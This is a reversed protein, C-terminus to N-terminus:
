ANSEDKAQTSAEIFKEILFIQSKLMRETNFYAKSQEPFNHQATKVMPLFHDKSEAVYEKCKELSFVGVMSQLNHIRDCLKAISAIPCNSIHLFYEEKSKKIGQYVKTLRWVADLVQTGFELDKPKSGFLNLIQTKDLDYDELIDHLLIVTLLLEEDQLDSLSAAFLCIEYQHSIEPDIGNKRLGKHHKKALNLAKLAHFYNRGLLYYKLSTHLKEFSM